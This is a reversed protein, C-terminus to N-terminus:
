LERKYREFVIKDFVLGYENTLADRVEEETSDVSFAFSREIKKGDMYVHVWRCVEVNLVVKGFRKIKAKILFRSCYLNAELETWFCRRMGKQPVVVYTKFFSLFFTYILNITKMM